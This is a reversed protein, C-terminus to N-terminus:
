VSKLKAKLRDLEVQQLALNRKMWALKECGVVFQLQVIAHAFEEDVIRAANAATKLDAEARELRGEVERRPDASMAAETDAM